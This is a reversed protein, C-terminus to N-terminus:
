VDSNLRLLFSRKMMSIGKTNNIIGTQKVTAKKAAKPNNQKGGRKQQVAM